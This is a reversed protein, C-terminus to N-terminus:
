AVLLLASGLRVRLPLGLAAAGALVLIALLMVDKGSVALLHALGSVQFEERVADSLREDQGLVMGRLLAADEGHLGRELGREARRRVADLAGALGGRREGTRRVARADIAAGAGRPRQY